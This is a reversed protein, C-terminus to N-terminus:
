ATARTTGWQTERYLTRLPGPNQRYMPDFSTRRLTGDVWIYLSCWPSDYGHAPYQRRLRAAAADRVTARIRHLLREGLRAEFLGIPDGDGASRIHARCRGDRYVAVDWGSPYPVPGPWGILRVLLETDPPDKLPSGGGVPGSGGGCGVLGVCVGVGIGLLLLKGSRTV